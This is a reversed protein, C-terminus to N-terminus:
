KFPYVIQPFLPICRADEKQGKELTIDTQTQACFTRTLLFM